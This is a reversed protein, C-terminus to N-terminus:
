GEFFLEGSASIAEGAITVASDKLLPYAIAALANVSGAGSALVGAAPVFSSSIQLVSRVGLPSLTSKRDLVLAVVGSVVAAAQSTGSLQMYATAGQGSEHRSAYTTALYSGAAEASVIHSGPAAVDPKLVLDYRTPGRSSYSAVTDDSRQATEHTDLAGVTL